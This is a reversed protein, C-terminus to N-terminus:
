RLVRTLMQLRCWHWLSRTLDTPAKSYALIIMKAHRFRSSLLITYRRRGGWWMILLRRTKCDKLANKSYPTASRTPPSLSLWICQHIPSVWTIEKREAHKVPIIPLTALRVLLKPTPPRTSQLMSTLGGRGRTGVLIPLTSRPVFTRRRWSLLLHRPSPLTSCLKPCPISHTSVLNILLSASTCISRQHYTPTPKSSEVSTELKSTNRACPASESYIQLASSVFPIGSAQFLSSSQSQHRHAKDLFIQIQISLISEIWWTLSKTQKSPPVLLVLGVLRCYIPRQSLAASSNWTTTLPQSKKNAIKKQPM